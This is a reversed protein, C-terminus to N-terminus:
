LLNEELWKAVGEEDCGGRERVRRFVDLSYAGITGDNRLLTNDFDTVILKIKNSINKV